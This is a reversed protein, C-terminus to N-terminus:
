QTITDSKVHYQFRLRANMLQIDMANRYRRKVIKTSNVM